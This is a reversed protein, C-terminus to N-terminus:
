AAEKEAVLRREPLCLVAEIILAIIMIILFMRWIENVLSSSDSM